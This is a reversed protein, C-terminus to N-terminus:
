TVSRSKEPATVAAGTKAANAYILSLALRTLLQKPSMELTIFFVNRPQEMTLAERAINLMAATKGRGTRAGIYSVTGDPFPVGFLSPTFDKDPDYNICEDAYESFTTFRSQAKPAAMNAAAKRIAAAAATMEKEDPAHGQELNKIYEATGSIIFESAKKAAEKDKEKQAKRRAEATIHQLGALAGTIDIGESIAFSIIFEAYDSVQDFVGAATDIVAEAKDAGSSGAIAKSAAKYFQTIQEHDIM